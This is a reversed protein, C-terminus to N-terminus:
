TDHGQKELWSGFRRLSAQDPGSTQDPGGAIGNTNGSSERELVPV